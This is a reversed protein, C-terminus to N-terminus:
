QIFEKRAVLLVVRGEQKLHGAIREAESGTGAFYDVRGHGRIAGGTDQVMVFRKLEQHGSPRSGEFVPLQTHIFALGGKPIIRWDMAISHGPTLPVEINGLPGESLERFFVYSQNYSLIDRVKEPHSWLYNKIAQMSMNEPGIEQMLVKGISSYPHGNKQAYNVRIVTGDQMNVLGSGQIQLFFLEIGDVYAIPKARGQLSRQYVIEERSDYPEFRGNIIKGVIHEDKWKLSFEGLNATVLDDPTNYLPENHQVTQERSGYLVPEYYGTFLAGGGENISEFFYFKEALLTRREKGSHNEIIDLFLRLSSIMEGATYVHAGYNFISTLPLRSYYSISRNLAERLSDIDINDPWEYSSVENLSMQRLLPVAEERLVFSKCSYTSLFVIFVLVVALWRKKM